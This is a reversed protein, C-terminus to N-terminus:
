TVAPTHNLRTNLDTPRHDGLQAIFRTMAPSTTTDARRVFSTEARALDPPLDQILVQNALASAEVVGRPLLTVGMGAAVCGLIGELTGFELITPNTIGNSNLLTLLKARYSCGSRFVLIRDASSISLLQDLHSNRLSSVFVLEEVFVTEELLEIHEVPGSVFAGDLKRDLVSQILVDTPGTELFIDVRPCDYTFSALISPLRWGATTEMAGIALRGAPDEIDGLLQVGEDILQVVREAYPLFKEGASTLAVGRAHRRFLAVGVENELSRIRSSVNSQVTHLDESARTIGKARVVALFFTLDSVEM